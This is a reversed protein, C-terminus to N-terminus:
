LELVAVSQPDSLVLGDTAVEADDEDCGCPQPDAVEDVPGPLLAERGWAAM